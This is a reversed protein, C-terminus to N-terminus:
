TGSRIPTPFYDSKARAGFGSTPFFLNKNSRPWRLETAAPAPGCRLPCAAPAHTVARGAGGVPQRRLGVGPDTARGDPAAARIAPHPARDHRSVMDGGSLG